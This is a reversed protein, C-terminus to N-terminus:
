KIASHMETVKRHIDAIREDMLSNFTSLSDSFSLHAYHQWVERVEDYMVEYPLYAENDSKLILKKNLSDNYVRKYALGTDTIVIYTQGDKIDKLGEVYSSIVISGPELPLMSDGRIEFGRFTGQPINPFTIKPLERIYEPDNFSDLYGAEAKVDVLEINGENQSDVSIALVKIGGQEIVKLNNSSFDQRILDDINVGFKKSMKVLMELNPETKNREYDGLTTRAIEFEDALEGQSIQYKKRLHKINSGLHSM